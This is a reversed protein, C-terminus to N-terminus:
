GLTHESAWALVLADDMLVLILVSNYNYVRLRKWIQVLADDMLVLILVNKSGFKKKNRHLYSHMM